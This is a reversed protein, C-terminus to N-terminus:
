PEVPVEPEVPQEPEEPTPAVPDTTSRDIVVDLRDVVHYAGTGDDARAELVYRTAVGQPAWLSLTATGQRSLVGSGAWRGFADTAGYRGDAPGDLAIQAYDGTITTVDYSVLGAGPDAPTGPDAPPAVERPDISWMFHVRDVVEGKEDTLTASMAFDYSRGNDIGLQITGHGSGDLQVRRNQGTGYDFEIMSHPTGQLEVVLVGSGVETATLVPQAVSGEAATGVMGIRSSTDDSTLPAAVAPGAVLSALVVGAAGLTALCTKKTSM